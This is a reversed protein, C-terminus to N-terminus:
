GTSHPHHHIMSRGRQQMSSSTQIRTQYTNTNTGQLLSQRNYLAFIKVRHHVGPYGLDNNERFEIITDSGRAQGLGVAGSVRGGCDCVVLGGDGSMAIGVVEAEADAVTKASVEEEAGDSGMPDEPDKGTDVVAGIVVEGVVVPDKGGPKEAPMDLGDIKMAGRMVVVLAPYEVDGIELNEM